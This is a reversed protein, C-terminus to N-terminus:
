PRTRQHVGIGGGDDTGATNGTVVMGDLTLNENATRIGGGDGVDTGAGGSGNGGTVTLGSIRSTSSAQARERRQLRPRRRRRQRHPRRAGARHDDRRRHDDTPRGDLLTITGTLGAQFVITDARRRRRQRRPDGAAALRGRLREPEDGHVDAPIVVRFTGLTAAPATGGNTNAVQGAQVAVTYPRQRRRRLHRRPRHYSYTATRPSGNGAPTM